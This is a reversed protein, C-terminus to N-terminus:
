QGAPKPIMLARLASLTLAAFLLTRKRLRWRGDLYSFQKSGHQLRELRRRLFEEASYEQLLEARSIGSPKHLIERILRIRVSTLNLNLFVWYGFALAVYSLLDLALVPAAEQASAAPALGFTAIGATALLGCAIGAAISFSARKALHAIAIQAVCAVALGGLPAATVIWDANM